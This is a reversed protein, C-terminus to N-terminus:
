NQKVGNEFSVKGYEAPTGLNTYLGRLQQGGLLVEYAAIGYDNKEETNQYHVSLVGSHLIGMGKYSQPADGTQSNDILWSLLYIDDNKSITLLGVYKDGETRYSGSINIVGAASAPQSDGLAGIHLALDDIQPPFDAHSKIEAKLAKIVVGTAVNIIRVNITYCEFIRCLSGILVLDVNALSGIKRAQSDETLGTQRLRYEDLLKNIQSREVIKYHGGVIIMTRLNESVAMSLNANVGVPKLDLVAMREAAGATTVGALLLVLVFIRRM